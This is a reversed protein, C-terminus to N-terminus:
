VGGCSCGVGTSAAESRAHRGGLQSPTRRFTVPAASRAADACRTRWWSSLRTCLIVAGAVIAWTTGFNTPPGQELADVRQRVWFKWQGSDELDDGDLLADIRNWLVGGPDDPDGLRLHSRCVRVFPCRIWDNLLALQPGPATLHIGRACGIVEHVFVENGSIAGGASDLVLGDGHAVFETKELGRSGAGVLANIAFRSSVVASM